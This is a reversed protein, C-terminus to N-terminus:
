PAYGDAGVDTAPGDFYGKPYGPYHGAPNFGEGIGETLPAWNDGQWGKLGDGGLYQVANDGTQLNPKNKTGMFDNFAQTVVFRKLFTLLHHQQQQPIAPVPVATTLDLNLLLLLPISVRSPSPFYMTQRDNGALPQTKRKPKQGKKCDFFSFDAGPLMQLNFPTPPFILPFGRM